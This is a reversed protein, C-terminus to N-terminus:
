KLTIGMNSWIDGGGLRAKFDQIMTPKKEESVCQEDFVFTDKEAEDTEISFGNDESVFKGYKSREIDPNPDDSLPLFYFFQDGKHAIESEYLAAMGTKNKYRGWFFGKESIREVTKESFDEEFLAPYDPGLGRYFGEGVMSSVIISDSSGYKQFVAKFIEEYNSAIIIDTKVELTRLDSFKVGFRCKKSM